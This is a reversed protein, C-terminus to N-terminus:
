GGFTISCGFNIGFLVITTVAVVIIALKAPHLGLKLICFQREVGEKIICEIKVVLLLVIIPIIWCSFSEVVQVAMVIM